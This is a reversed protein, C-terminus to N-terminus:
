GQEPCTEKIRLRDWIPQRFTEDNRFQNAFKTRFKLNTELYTGVNYNPKTNIWIDDVREIESFKNLQETYYAQDKSLWHDRCELYVTLEVSEVSQNESTEVDVDRKETIVDECKKLDKESKADVDEENGDIEEM